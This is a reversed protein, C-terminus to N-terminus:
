HTRDESPAECKSKTYQLSLYCTQRASWLITNSTRYTLNEWKNTKIITLRLIKEFKIVYQAVQSLTFTDLNLKLYM